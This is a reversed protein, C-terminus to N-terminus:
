VQVQVRVLALEPALELVPVSEPVPRAVLSLVSPLRTARASTATFAPLLVRMLVPVALPLLPLQSRLRARPLSSVRSSLLSAPPSVQVSTSAPEPALELVLAPLVVLLGELPPVSLLVLRPKTRRASTATSPLLLAPMSVLVALPRSPPPWLPRARPQSSVRSSHASVPPSVPPSTSDRVPLPELVPVLVLVRALALELALPLRALSPLPLSPRTLEPSSETSTALLASM